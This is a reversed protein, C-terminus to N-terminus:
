NVIASDTERPADHQSSLVTAPRHPESKLEGHPRQDTGLGDHTAADDVGRRYGMRFGLAWGCVACGCLVVLIRAAELAWAFPAFSLHLFTMKRSSRARGGSAARTWGLASRAGDQDGPVLLWGTERYPNNSGAPFSKDSQRRGWRQDCPVNHWGFGHDQAVKEVPPCAGPEGATGKM